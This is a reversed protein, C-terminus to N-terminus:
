QVYSASTTGTATVSMSLTVDCLLLAADAHIVLSCLTYYCNYYVYWSQTGQQKM